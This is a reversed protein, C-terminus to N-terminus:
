SFLIKVVSQLEDGEVSYQTSIYFTVATIWKSESTVWEDGKCLMDNQYLVLQLTSESMVKKLTVLPSLTLRADLINIILLIGKNPHRTLHRTTYPSDVSYDEIDCYIVANRTVLSSNKSFEKKSRLIAIEVNCNRLWM